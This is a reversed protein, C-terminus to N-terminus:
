QIFSRDFAFVCGDEAHAPITQCYLRAKEWAAVVKPVYARTEEYPPVGQNSIVANEGANYGALSLIPDGKFQGLLWDLYAAGGSINQFPDNSDKVGFREATAPILQMLGRAGKPSVAGPKGASEVAIVALVLAPSVRRGATAALIQAGHDAIIREMNRIDPRLRAQQDAQTENLARLVDDLRDPSAADISPSVATWFWDFTTPAPADDPVVAKSKSKEPAAYDHPWTKEIAINIRRTTGNTPPKVRKFTFGGPEEPQEQGGATGALCLACLVFYGVAITRFM